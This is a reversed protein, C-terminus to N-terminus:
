VKEQKEKLKSVEKELELHKIAITSAMIGIQEWIRQIEQNQHIVEDKTKDIKRILYMQMLSVFIFIGFYVQELTITFQM